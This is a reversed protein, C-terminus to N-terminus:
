LTSHSGFSKDHASKRPSTSPGVSGFSAGAFEKRPCIRVDHFSSPRADSGFTPSLPMCADADGKSASASRFLQSPMLISLSLKPLITSPAPSDDCLILAQDTSGCTRTSSLLFPDIKSWSSSKSELSQKNFNCVIDSFFKIFWAKTKM